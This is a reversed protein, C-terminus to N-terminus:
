IGQISWAAYYHRINDAAASLKQQNHVLCCTIYFPGM